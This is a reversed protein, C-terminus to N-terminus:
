HRTRLTPQRTSCNNARPWLVIQSAHYLYNDEVISLGISLNKRLKGSRNFRAHHNMAEAIRYFKEGPELAVRGIQDDGIELHRGHVACFKDAAEACLGIAALNGHDDDRDVFFTFEPQARELGPGGIKEMARDIVLFEDCARTIQQLQALLLDLEGGAGVVQRLLELVRSRERSAASRSELSRSAWTISVTGAMILAVSM